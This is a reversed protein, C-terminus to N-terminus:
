HFILMLIIIIYHQYVCMRYLFSTYYIYHLWLTAVWKVHSEFYIEFDLRHCKQLQKLFFFFSNSINWKFLTKFSLHQCCWINLNIFFLYQIKNCEGVIQLDSHWHTKLCLHQVYRSQFWDNWTCMLYLQHSWHNMHIKHFHRPFQHSYKNLMLTHTLTQIM